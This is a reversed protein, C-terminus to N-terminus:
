RNYSVQHSSGYNQEIINSPCVQRLSREFDPSRIGIAANNAAYQVARTCSQDRAAFQGNQQSRIIDQMFYSTQQQFEAAANSQGMYQQQQNQINGNGSSMYVQNSGNQYNQNQHQRQSSSNPNGVIARTVAYGAMEALGTNRSGSYNGGSVMRGAVNGVAQSLIADNANIEQGRARAAVQDVIVALNTGNGSYNLFGQAQAAEPAALAGTLTMAVLAAHPVKNLLGEKVTLMDKVPQTMKDHMFSLSNVIGTVIGKDFVDKYIKHFNSM